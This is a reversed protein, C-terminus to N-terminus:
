NDTCQDYGHREQQLIVPQTPASSSKPSSFVRVSDPASLPSGDSGLGAPEILMAPSILVARIQSERYLDAWFDGIARLEAGGFSNSRDANDMTLEVLHGDIVRQHVRM